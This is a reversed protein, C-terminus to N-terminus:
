ATPAVALPRVGIAGKEAAVWLLTLDFAPLDVPVTPANVLAGAVARQLAAIEAELGVPDRFVAGAMAEGEGRRRGDRRVAGADLPPHESSTAAGPECSSAPMKSRM